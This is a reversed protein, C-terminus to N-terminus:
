EVVETKEQPLDGSKFSGRGRAFWDALIIVVVVSYIVCVYNM